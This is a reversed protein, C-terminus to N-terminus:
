IHMGMSMAANNATALVQFRLHRDISSHIFYMCVVRPLFEFIIPMQFVFVFEHDDGFLHDNEREKEEFDM